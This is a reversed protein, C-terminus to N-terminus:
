EYRLAEIPDLSAAKQAPYLGFILGILSCVLVGAAAWAWPFVLTAQLWVAVANGVVVGLVIGVVAGLLCLFLAELLFQSRIDRQRAGLSKRVGIEKTRETVSVLMINMIGVGAAVLAITSIVFAGIRVSGAINRFANALSDNGYLEFDNPDEPKLERAKRFAGVALGMTRDYLAQNRATVAINVTRNKSGYNEFFRTIPIIVFNDDSQGFAGGKQAFVGVVEYNKSDLKIIQGLAGGRPFLRQLIQQGIVCVSRAFEVDEDSLNRGEGIAFQNATIFSRNTGCIVLNNNTRRNEFLAQVGSDFTKPCLMEPVDGISREFDLFNRYTVNPRNKFRDDGFTNFGSPYKSFQFTNSGLWTLGSEISSQLASITTMVCIVSFIGISIGSTTLASRLKNAGLSSWAMRIIELVLRGRDRFRDKSM